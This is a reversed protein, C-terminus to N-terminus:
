VNIKEKQEFHSKFGKLWSTVAMTIFDSPFLMLRIMDEKTNEISASVIEADMMCKKVSLFTDNM